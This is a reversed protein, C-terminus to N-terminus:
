FKMQAALTASQEDDAKGYQIGAQHIGSSIDSLANTQAQGAEQFRKLAEQAAKGAKGRWKGSLEGGTSEVMRIIQQLEGAIQEFNSAEARLKAADTRMEPM